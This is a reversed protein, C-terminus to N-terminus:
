WQSLVQGSSFGPGMANARMSDIWGRLERAYLKQCQLRGISFSTMSDLAM